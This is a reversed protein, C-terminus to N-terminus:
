PCGSPSRLDAMLCFLNGYWERTRDLQERRTEVAKDWRQRVNEDLM